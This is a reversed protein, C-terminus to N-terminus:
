DILLRRAHISPTKLGWHKQFVEYQQTMRDIIDLYNKNKNKNTQPVFFPKSKWPHVGIDLNEFWLRYVVNFVIDMKHAVRQTVNLLNKTKQRDDHLFDGLPEFHVHTATQLTTKLQVKYKTSKTIIFNEVVEYIKDLSFLSYIILTFQNLYHPNKAYKDHNLNAWRTYCWVEDPTLKKDKFVFGLETLKPWYEAIVKQQQEANLLFRVECILKELEQLCESWTDMTEKIFYTCHTKSRGRCWVSVLINQDRLLKNCKGHKVTV